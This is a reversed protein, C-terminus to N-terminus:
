EIKKTWNKKGVVFVFRKTSPRAPAWRGFAIFSRNGEVTLGTKSYPNKLQILKERDFSRKEETGLIKWYAM